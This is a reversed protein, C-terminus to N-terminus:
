LKTQNQKNGELIKPTCVKKTGSSNNCCSVDKKLESILLDALELANNVTTEIEIRTFRDANLAVGRIAEKAIEYRRQEWDVSNNVELIQPKFKSMGLILGDDNYVSKIENFGVEIPNGYSDCKDLVVRAYDAINIIEGSKKLEVKM